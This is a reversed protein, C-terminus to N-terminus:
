RRRTTKKSKFFQTYIIYSLGAILAYAIMTNDKFWSLAIEKFSQKAQPTSAGLIGLTQVIPSTPPYNEGASLPIMNAGNGLVGNSAKNAAVRIMNGFFTGGPKKKFLNKFM